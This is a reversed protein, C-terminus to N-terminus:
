KVADFHILEVEKAKLDTILSIHKIESLLIRPEQLRLNRNHNLVFSYIPRAHVSKHM